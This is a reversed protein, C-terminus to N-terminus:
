RPVPRDARDGVGTAAEVVREGPVQRRVAPVQGAAPHAEPEGPLETVLHGHVTGHLPERHAQGHEASLPRARIDIGTIGVTRYGTISCSHRCRVNRCQRYRGSTIWDSSGAPSVTCVMSPDAQTPSIGNRIDPTRGGRTGARGHSDRKGSVFTRVYTDPGSPPVPM